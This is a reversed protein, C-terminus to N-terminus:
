QMFITGVGILKCLLTENLPHPNKFRQKYDINELKVFASAHLITGQGLYFAVHTIRDISEGFFLLDGVDAAELKPEKNECAQFQDGSDRPIVMGHLLYASQILGSCDIGCDTRGGWLYPTGLFGKATEVPTEGLISEANLVETVDKLESSIQAGLPLMLSRKPLSLRCSYGSHLRVEDPPQVGIELENKNIWGRYGDLELEIHVWREKIDLVKAIEGYLMQTLMESRDSAEARVPSIGAINKVLLADMM